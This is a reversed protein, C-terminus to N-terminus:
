FEIQYVEYTSITFQKEGDTLGYNKPIDYYNKCIQLFAEKKDQKDELYDVFIRINNEAIVRKDFLYNIFDIFNNLNTNYKNYLYTGLNKLM